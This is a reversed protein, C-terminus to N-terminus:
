KFTTVLGTVPSFISSHEYTNTSIEKLSLSVLLEFPKFYVKLSSPEQGELSYM